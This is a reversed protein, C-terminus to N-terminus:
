AVDRHAPREHSVEEGITCGPFTRVLLLLANIAVLPDPILGHELLDRLETLSVPGRQHAVASTRTSTAPLGKKNTYPHTEWSAWFMLRRQMWGRVLISDVVYDARPPTGRAYTIVVRLGAGAAKAAIRKAGIPIEEETALRARVEPAPHPKM